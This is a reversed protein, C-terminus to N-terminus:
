NLGLVNDSIVEDVEANLRLFVKSCGEADSSINKLGVCDVIMDILRKGLDVGTQNPTGQAAQNATQTALNNTRAEGQDVGGAGAKKSTQAPTQSAVSSNETVILTRSIRVVLRLKKTHSLPEKSHYSIIGYGYKLKKM